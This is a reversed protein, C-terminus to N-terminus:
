SRLNTEAQESTSITHSPEGAQPKFCMGKRLKVQTCICICICICVCMCTYIYICIHMCMYMCISVYLYTYMYMCMYLYVCVCVCLCVCVCVSLGNLSGCGNVGNQTWSRSFSVGATRTDGGMERYLERPRRVGGLDAGLSRESLDSARRYSSVPTRVHVPDLDLPTLATTHDPEAM